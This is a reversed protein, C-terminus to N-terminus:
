DDPHSDFWDQELKSPHGHKKPKETLPAPPTMNMRQKVFKQATQWKVNYKKSIAYISGGNRIHERIENEYPRLKSNYLQYGKPHGIIKGSARVRALGQKTRESILQREIEASLGFAFILVKSQIDDALAFNEKIVYLKVKKDLLIQMENFVMTLSRGLRSIETVVLTDGEQIVRLLNGLERDKYNKAGSVTEEYWFDIPKNNRKGWEDIAMRQNEVTQMGTSVRIYGYNM